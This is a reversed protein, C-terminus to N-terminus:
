GTASGPVSRAIGHAATADLGARGVLYCAIPAALRESAHAATGALALLEDIVAADPVPQGLRRAFESIWDRGSPRAPEEAAPGGTDPGNM